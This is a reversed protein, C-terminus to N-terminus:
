PEERTMPLTFSFTSGEGLTSELWILGNHQQVISKCIALGLGTGGKQRSDSVDVQQFRGFITELQDAPVGCGQDTISFLIHPKSISGELGGLKELVPHDLNQRVEATLCVKSGAPSFKIANSLLNVLAQVIADPAAWLEAALFTTGLTVSAQDAIAQVAEISQQMLEAVQCTEMVLEVKGSELRELDLIDNVLRVLRDSSNLAIQLMYKAKEPQKELVGTELVGLSGRIATLPTRLEHSVVSLFENKIRDIEHRNSIDQIQAVFYLPAESHDRIISASLFAWIIHGQQHIYRKEMQYSRQHGQLLCQMNKLDLDLDDPHTLAQFTRQLLATESYGTIECLSRNVQM